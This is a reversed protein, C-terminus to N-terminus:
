RGSCASSPTRIDCSSIGCRSSTSSSGPEEQPEYPLLRAVEGRTQHLVILPVSSPCVRAPRRVADMAQPADTRLVVGWDDHPLSAEGVDLSHLSRSPATRPPDCIRPPPCPHLVASVPESACGNVAHYWHVLSPCVFAQEAPSTQPPCSTVVCCAPACAFRGRLARRPGRVRFCIRSVESRSKESFPKARVLTRSMAFPAPMVSAAM